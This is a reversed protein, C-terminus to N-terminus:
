KIIIENWNNKKACVRVIKGLDKENILVSEASGVLDNRNEGDLSYGSVRGELVKYSTKLTMELMIKDKPGILLVYRIKDNKLTSIKRM